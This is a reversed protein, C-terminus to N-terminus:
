DSAYAIEKIALQFSFDWALLSYIISKLFPLLAIFPL